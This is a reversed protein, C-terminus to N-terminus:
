DFEVVYDKLKEPIRTIRKPRGGSSTAGVTKPSQRISPAEIPSPSVPVVPPPFSAQQEQQNLVRQSGLTTMFSSDDTNNCINNEEERPLVDTVPVSEIGDACEKRPKLHVASRRYNGGAVDVMYSRESLRNTITGPTWQKSTEPNLQVYVPSGTQLEPLNRTKRDYNFKANRRNNEIAAPVQEVVKPMLNVGATPVGSRTARSFLRAVPSSGIKNPINRWHLLAYWFDTGTEEAKKLLRKAIKVAAEAKGNAQQHHPASTVHDIDWDLTFKKM